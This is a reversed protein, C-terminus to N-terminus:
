FRKNVVIQQQHYFLSRLVFSQKISLISWFLKLATTKTWPIQVHWKSIYKQVCYKSTCDSRVGGGLSLSSEFAQTFSKPLGRKIQGRYDVPVKLSSPSLKCISFSSFAVLLIVFPHIAFFHSKAFLDSWFSIMFLEDMKYLWHIMSFYMLYM